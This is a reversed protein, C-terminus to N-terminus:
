CPRHVQSSHQVNGEGGVAGASFLVNSDDRPAVHPRLVCPLM